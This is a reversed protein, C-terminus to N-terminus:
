GVACRKGCRRPSRRWGPSGRLVFCGMRTWRMGRIRPSGTCGRCSRHTGSYTAPQVDAVRGRAFPPRVHCLGVRSAAGDPTWRGRCNRARRRPPLGAAGAGGRAQRGFFTQRPTSAIPPLPPEHVCKGGIIKVEVSDNLGDGYPRYGRPHRQLNIPQPPTLPAGWCLRRLSKRRRGPTAPASPLHLLRIRSPSRPHHTGRPKTLVNRGGAERKHIETSVRRHGGLWKPEPESRACRLRVLRAGPPVAGRRARFGQSCDTSQPLARIPARIPGTAGKAVVLTSRGCRTVASSAGPAASRCSRPPRGSEQACAGAPWRPSPPRATRPPSGLGQTNPPAALRM